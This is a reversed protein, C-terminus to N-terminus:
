PVYDSGSLHRVQRHTYVSSGRLVRSSDCAEPLPLARDYEHRNPYENDRGRAVQHPRALDSDSLSHMPNARQKGHDNSPGSPSCNVAPYQGKVLAM